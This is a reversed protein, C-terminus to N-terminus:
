ISKYQVIFSLIFRKAMMLPIAGFVICLFLVQDSQRSSAIFTSLIFGSCAAFGTAFFFEQVIGIIYDKM